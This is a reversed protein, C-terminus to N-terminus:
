SDYPQSVSIPAGARELGEADRHVGRECTGSPGPHLSKFRGHRMWASRPDMFIGPSYSPSSTFGNGTTGDRTMAVSPATGAAHPHRLPGRAMIGRGHRM